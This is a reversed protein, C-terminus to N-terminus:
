LGHGVAPVWPRGPEAYSTHKGGEIERIRQSCETLFRRAVELRKGSLDGGRMVDFVRLAGSRWTLEFGYKQPVHGTVGTEQGIRQRFDGGATIVITVKSIKAGDSDVDIVVWDAGEYEDLLGTLGLLHPRYGTVERFQGAQFTAPLRGPRNDNYIEAALQLFNAIDHDVGEADIIALWASKVQRRNEAQARWAALEQQKEREAISMEVFDVVM